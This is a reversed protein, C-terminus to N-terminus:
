EANPRLIRRHVMRGHRIAGLGQPNAGTDITSGSTPSIADFPGSANFTSIITQDAGANPLGDFNQSYTPGTFSLVSASLMTRHELLEVHPKFGPGFRGRCRVALRGRKSKESRQFFRAFMRFM